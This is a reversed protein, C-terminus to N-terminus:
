QRLRPDLADRLGDGVLNIAMVAVMIAIGPMGAIWWAARLYDRGDSVMAGWEPTPPQAGLGLFSLGAASLIATAISLTALVVVPSFVSPLVHRFMVRGNSAGVVRAADVFALSRTALVSSRVLRTYAPIASIGVAIMVNQLGVGLIAIIGMALLIGPFSLMIDVAMMVVADVKHGYYGALLGCVVGASLGIGVSIVGVALSLRGGYLVRTYIDRGFVDTGLWHERGPPLRSEGLQDDPAFPALLPALLAALVILALLVAGFMAGRNRRFQRWVIERPSRIRTHELREDQWPRVPPLAAGAIGARSQSAV